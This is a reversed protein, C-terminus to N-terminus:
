QGDPPVFMRLEHPLVAASFPLPRGEDGDINVIHKENTHAHLTTTTFYEIDQHHSLNGQLLEPIKM